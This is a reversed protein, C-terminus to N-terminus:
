CALMTWASRPRHQSKKHAPNRAHLSATRDPQRIAFLGISKQMASATGREINQTSNARIGERKSFRLWVKLDQRKGIEFAARNALVEVFYLLAGDIDPRCREDQWSALAEKAVLILDAHLPPFATGGACEKLLDTAIEIYLPDFVIM